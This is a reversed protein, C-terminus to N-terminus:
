IKIMNQSNKLMRINKKKNKNSAPSMNKELKHALNIMMTLKKMTIMIKSIYIIRKYNMLYYHNTVNGVMKM